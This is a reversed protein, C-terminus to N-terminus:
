EQQRLREFRQFLHDYWEIPIDSSEEEADPRWRALPQVSNLEWTWPERNADPAPIVYLRVLLIAQRPPPRDPHDRAFSRVQVRLYARIERWKDRVHKEIRDRWEVSMDDATKGEPLHLGLDVAAEYRRLRFKGFRLFRNVNAPENESLLLEVQGTAGPVAEDWRLEVALFPVKDEVNPAFLAWDQPQGTVQEWRNALGIAVQTADYAHGEQRTWGPLVAEILRGDKLKPRARELLALLNAATLFLLQGVIFLGLAL